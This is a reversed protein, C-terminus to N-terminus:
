FDNLLLGTLQECARNVGVFQFDGNGWVDVVFIVEDVGNYISRLFQEKEALEQTREQVKLELNQAHNELTQYSFKLKNWLLYGRSSIGTIM